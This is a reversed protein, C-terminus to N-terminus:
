EEDRGGERSRILVAREDGRTARSVGGDGKDVTIM